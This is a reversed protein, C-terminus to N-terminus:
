RARRASLVELGGEDVIGGGGGGEEDARVPADDDVVAGDAFGLTGERGTGGGAWGRVTGAGLVAVLLWDFGFAAGTGGNFNRHSQM